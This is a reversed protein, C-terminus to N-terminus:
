SIQKMHNNNRIEFGNNKWVDRKVMKVVGIKVAYGHCKKSKLMKIRGIDSIIGNRIFAIRKCLTEVEYMYHSTLLITTKEEKSIKRIIERTKIAIDPDLGITPEDLMLVKPRNILSKTLIVRIKQGTSLNDFKKDMINEIEFKKSLDNIRDKKENRRINYMESYFDLIEKVKLLRHFTSEGSVSNIIELIRFRDKLIDYGCIDATGKDPLLITTLINILTTKGAGNPGLLGFIEGEKISFNIDRLAYFENGDHKFKKSINKIDVTKSM